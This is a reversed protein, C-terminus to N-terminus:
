DMTEILKHIYPMGSHERVIARSIKYKLVGDETTTDVIQYVLLWDLCDKVLAESYVLAPRMNPNSARLRDNIPKLQERISALSETIEAVSLFEPQSDNTPWSWLLSFVLQEPYRHSDLLGGGQEIPKMDQKLHESRAIIDIKNKPMTLVTM